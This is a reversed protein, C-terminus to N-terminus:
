GKDNYYFDPHNESLAYYDNWENVIIMDNLGIDVLALGSRLKRALLTDATDDGNSNILDGPRVVVLIVSDARLSAAAHILLGIDLIAKYQSGTSIREIAKLVLQRDFYLAFAGCRLTNARDALNKMQSVIAKASKLQIPSGKARRTYVLKVHAPYFREGTEPNVFYAM